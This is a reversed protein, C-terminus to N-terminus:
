ENTELEPIDEDDSDVEDDSDGGFGDMNPMGGDGGGMQNMMQMFDPNGGNMGDLDGAGEGDSSDDEDKWRQFDVKLWHQKVKEKILRPWYCSNVKELTCFVGRGEKKFKSKEPDIEDFLDITVAFKQQAQTGEFSIQQKKFEVNADKCDCVKFTVFAVTDRQAWETLPCKIADM